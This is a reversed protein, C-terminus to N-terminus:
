HADDLGGQKSVRCGRTAPSSVPLGSLQAVEAGTTRVWAPDLLDALTFGHLVEAIRHNILAYVLRCECYQTRLCSDPDELCGVLCVPGIVAEIIEGLTMEDAPRCLRYGGKRGSIGRLLRANRLPVVLQELYGRSLDTRAAVSSLSVAGNGHNNKAIDLMMRLAYRARTSLRM